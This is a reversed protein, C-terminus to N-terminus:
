RWLGSAATSTQAVITFENFCNVLTNMHAERGRLSYIVRTLIFSNKCYSIYAVLSTFLECTMRDQALAAVSTVEHVSVRCM